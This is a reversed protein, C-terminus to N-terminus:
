RGAKLRPWNENATEIHSRANPLWLSRVSKSVNLYLKDDIVTWAAPDTPATSGKSVAYACYGGYQPAYREPDEAFKDRNSINDFQWTVDMWQHTIDPSGLVPRQETFYAVPDYGRMAVGNVNFVQEISWAEVSAVLCCLAALARILSKLQLYITTNDM